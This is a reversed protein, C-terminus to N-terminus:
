RGVSWGFPRASDMKSARDNPIPDIRSLFWSNISQNISQHISTSLSLLRMIICTLHSSVHTIIFFLAITSSTLYSKLPRFPWRQIQSRLIHSLLQFSKPIVILSMLLWPYLLPDNRDEKRSIFFSPHDAKFSHSLSFHPSLLPFIYTADGYISIHLVSLLM